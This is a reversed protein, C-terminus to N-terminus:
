AKNDGVRSGMLGVEYDVNSGALCQLSWYYMLVIVGEVSIKSDEGDKSDEVYFM